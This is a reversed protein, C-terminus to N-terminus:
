TIPEILPKRALVVVFTESGGDENISDPLNQKGLPAWHEAGKLSNRNLRNSGPSCEESARLSAGAQAGSPPGVMVVRVLKGANNSHNKVSRRVILFSVSQTPGFTQAHMYDRAKTRTRVARKKV